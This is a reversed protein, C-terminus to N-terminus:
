LQQRTLLQAGGIDDARYICNEPKGTLRSANKQVPTGAWLNSANSLRAPLPIRQRSDRAPLEESHVGSPALTKQHSTGLWPFLGRRDSMQYAGAEPQPLPGPQILLVKSIVGSIKRVQDCRIWVRTGVLELVKM